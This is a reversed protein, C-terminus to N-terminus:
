GLIQRLGVDPDQAVGLPCQVNVRDAFARARRRRRRASRTAV